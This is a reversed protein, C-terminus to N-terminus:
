HHAAQADLKGASRQLSIIIRAEPLPDAKCSQQANREQHPLQHRPSLKRRLANKDVTMRMAREEIQQRAKVSNMQQSADYRKSVNGDGRKSHADAELAASCHIHSRDVPM